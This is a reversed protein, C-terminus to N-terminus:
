RPEDVANLLYALRVWRGVDWVGDVMREVFGDMVSWIGETAHYCGADGEEVDGVGDWYGAEEEFAAVVDEM